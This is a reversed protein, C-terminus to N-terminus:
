GYINYWSSVLLMLKSFWQRDGWGNGALLFNGGDLTEAWEGELVIDQRNHPVSFNFSFILIMFPTRWPSVNDGTVNVVATSSIKLLIFMLAPMIMLPTLSFLKLNASSMISNASLTSLSLFRLLGSHALFSPHFSVSYSSFKSWTYHFLLFATSLLESLYLVALPSSRICADLFVSLMQARFSCLSQSYSLM